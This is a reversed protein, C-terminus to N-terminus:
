EKKWRYGCSMGNIRECARSITTNAVDLERAAESISYYEKIFNGDLDYQRVKKGNTKIGNKSHTKYYEKLSNSIKEKTELTTNNPNKLKIELLKKTNNKITQIRKEIVERPIKKGFNPNGTGKMRESHLKKREESLKTGYQPHNEGKMIESLHKLTEPNHKRNKGGQLLNYGNPHVTNYKKIYEEEYKDTDEDFCICIIKYDFNDIGYKKYANYLIQGVNHKDVKKHSYWRKNIDLQLSQGVYKMGNVKNTVLYVYGM